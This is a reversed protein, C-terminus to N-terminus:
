AGVFPVSWLGCEVTWLGCDFHWMLIFSTIGYCWPVTWAMGANSMGMVYAKFHSLRHLRLWLLAPKDPSHGWTVIGSVDIHKVDDRLATAWQAISEPSSVDLQTILLRGGSAAPLAKLQDASDPTRVAAIVVNGRGLLDSALQLGIGRNAGTVVVTTEKLEGAMVDSVESAM